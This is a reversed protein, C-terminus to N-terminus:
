AGDGHIAYGPISPWRVTLVVSEEEACWSHDVGPGWVVYDGREALVVDRGPLETRIVWRRQPGPHDLYQEVGLTSHEPEVGDRRRGDLM